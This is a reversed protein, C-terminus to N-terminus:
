KLVKCFYNYTIILTPNIICPGNFSHSFECVLWDALEISLPHPLVLLLDMWKHLDFKNEPQIIHRTLAFMRFGLPHHRKLALWNQNWNWICISVNLWTSWLSCSAFVGFLSQKMFLCTISIISICKLGFKNIILLNNISIM